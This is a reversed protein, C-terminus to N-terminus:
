LSSRRPSPECPCLMRRSIILMALQSVEEAVAGAEAYFDQARATKKAIRRSLVAISAALLPMTSMMVLALQWGRYLGVSYGCVFQSFNAVTLGVRYGIAEGVKFVDENMRSPLAAPTEQDFWSIDQNLVARFYEIRIRTSITTSSYTFIADWVFSSSFAVAAVVVLQLSVTQVESLIGATDGTASRSGVEDMFDGIFLSFAPFAAGNIAAALLGIALLIFDSRSALSFLKLFSVSIPRDVATSGRGTKCCLAM